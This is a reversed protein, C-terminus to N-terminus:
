FLIELYRSRLVIQAIASLRKAWRLRNIRMELWVLEVKSNYIQTKNLGLSSQTPM